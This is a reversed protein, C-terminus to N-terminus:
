GAKRGRKLDRKYEWTVEEAGIAWDGPETEEGDSQESAKQGAHYRFDEATMGLRLAEARAKAYRARCAKLFEGAEM